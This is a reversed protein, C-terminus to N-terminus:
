SCPATHLAIGPSPMRFVPLGVIALSNISYQLMAEQGHEQSEFQQALQRIIAQEIDWGITFCAPVRREHLATQVLHEAVDVLTTGTAPPHLQTPTTNM